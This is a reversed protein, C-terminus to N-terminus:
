GEIAKYSKPVNLRWTGGSFSKKRSIKKIQIKLFMKGGREFVIQGPSVVGDFSRFESFKLVESTNDASSRAFWRVQGESRGYRFPFGGSTVAEYVHCGASDKEASVKSDPPVLIGDFLDAVQHIPVMPIVPNGLLGVMYGNGKLYQKETPFVITWGEKTWLLSAVGIGLPGMLELRYRTGPVSFLVADFEQSKGNEDVMTLLFKARLSDRSAEAGMGNEPMLSSEVQSKNAACSAFFFCFLIYFFFRKKM